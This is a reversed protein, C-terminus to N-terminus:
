KMKEDTPIITLLSDIAHGMLRLRNTLIKIDRLSQVKQEALDASCFTQTHRRPDAAFFFLGSRVGNRM